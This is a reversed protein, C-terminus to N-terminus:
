GEEQQDLQSRYIEQYVICSHMLEHHQGQGVLRGQNLVLINDAHMATSVRQTVIIKIADMRYNRLAQRLALDTNVDLASLSDDFVYVASKKILARAIALRQKQGGSFNVGGQAVTAELKLKLSDVFDQAQAVRLVQWMDTETAALNGMRLNDSITGSFLFSKQPVLGIASRVQQQPMTRIDLNDFSITGHEIDYFRMLLNSITSKGSGTSGIIATTTGSLCSFSIDHLVNEEAGPYSFYVKGFSLCELREVADGIANNPTDAIDPQMDLVEQLRQLCSIVKPLTTITAAALLLYAFTIIIYEVIATIEGIQVDGIASLMGGWWIIAAVCLGVILWTIPNLLAFIKNLSIMNDAYRGFAVASRSQEYEENGFARIVKTGTINERFVQSAKDLLMQIKKALISSRSLILWVVVSFILLSVLLAIGLYLNARLTMFISVVAILPAPIVLQWFLGINSQLHSIDSTTRNIMSSTGISDLQRISLRQSQVFLKNRMDHGFLAALEASYWSGCISISASLLAVPLMWMGINLITQVDGRLIGRDIIDAVLFPVLLTCVSQGLLLALTLLVKGINDHLFQKLYKM